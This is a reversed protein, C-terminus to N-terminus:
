SFWIEKRVTWFSYFSGNYFITKFLSCTFHSRVAKETGQARPRAGHPRFAAAPRRKQQHHEECM